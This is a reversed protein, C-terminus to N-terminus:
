RIKKPNQAAGGLPLLNTRRLTECVKLLIPMLILQVPVLVLYELMRYALWGLYTKSGYLMSVWYTNVLLGLILCNIVAVIVMNPFLRIKEWHLSRKGIRVPEKNLFLGAVLGMLAACVTFGPHYPGIPFLIAGLFDSLGWVVAGPLPGLLMAALMPPIFAFGIKLAHTNISCFRNLVIELATLMACICLLQITNKTKTTTQKRNM